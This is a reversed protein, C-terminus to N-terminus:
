CYYDSITFSTFLSFASRFQGSGCCGSENNVYPVHGDLLRKDQIKSRPKRSRKSKGRFRVPHYHIKFLTPFAAPTLYSQCNTALHLFSCTLCMFYLEISCDLINCLIFVFSELCDILKFFSLLKSFTQGRPHLM